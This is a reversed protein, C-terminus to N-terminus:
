KPIFYILIDVAILVIIIWELFSSHKHYEEAVLMDLLEHITSIKRSLIEIRPRLDLYRALQLYDEELEPYDWFFEPTDLLNYNLSIDSSTDFMEGRLKSLKRRNLAVKGYKALQKSIYANREILELAKDEFFILKASQAFAHSLGLLKLPQEDPIVLTDHHIRPQQNADISYRYQEMLPRRIPDKIIPELKACLQQRDSDSVGWGVLVGYDFLWAIGSPTNLLYADRNRTAKMEAVLLKQGLEADLRGGLLALTIPKTNQDPM